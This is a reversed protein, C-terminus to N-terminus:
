YIRYSPAQDFGKERLELLIFFSFKLNFDNLIGWYNFHKKM